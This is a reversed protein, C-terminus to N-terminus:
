KVLFLAVGNPSLRASIADKLQGVSKQRWVDFVAAEGAAALDQRNVTITAENQPDRNFVALAKSGDALKKIM